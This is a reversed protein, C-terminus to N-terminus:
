VLMVWKHEQLYRIARKLADLDEGLLGIGTNCNSCLLGRVKGTDHNHDIHFTESIDKKCIYCQGEQRKLNEHVEDITTGYKKRYDYADKIHKNEKYYERRYLKECEKCYSNRGDKRRRNIYFEDFPKDEKCRICTRMSM